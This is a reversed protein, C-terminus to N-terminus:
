KKSENKNAKLEISYLKSFCHICCPSRYNPLDMDHEIITSEGCISPTNANLNPYAHFTNDM